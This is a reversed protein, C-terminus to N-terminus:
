LYVREGKRNYIEIDNKSINLSDCYDCMKDFTMNRNTIIKGDSFEAKFKPSDDHITVKM